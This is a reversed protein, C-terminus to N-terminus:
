LKDQYSFRSISMLIGMEALLIVLSSGGYSFFPLTIGTNPITNTVVAINLAAQLGVKGVIGIAALKMFPDPARNAIVFGRWVFAAFLAIVAICGVYGLEEGIVAFIFDNQPQSVYMHKLRGQGLGVGLFGGSGVANLGNITQWTDNQASFNEPHLWIEIRNRAHSSVAILVTAAVAFVSGAIGFWIKRTGACFVVLMGIAFLIITGSVHKEAAVLGCVAGIAIIPYGIGYISAQSFSRKSLVQPSYKAYYRALFLAIGLKMFESPQVGISTGPIGIWRQAGGGTDGVFLVLVLLISVVIFFINSMKKYFEPDFAAAVFMAIIGLGVWQLQKWIFYFSDGYRSLAYPYSASFVMVSGFCLMAIIIGLMPRDINGKIRTIETERYLDGNRRGGNERKAPPNKGSNRNPEKQPIFEMGKM